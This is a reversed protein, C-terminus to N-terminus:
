MVDRSQLMARNSRPVTQCLCILSGPVSVCNAVFDSARSRGNMSMRCTASRKWSRPSGSPGTATAARTASSFISWIILKSCGNPTVINSDTAPFGTRSEFVWFSEIYPRLEHRPNVFTLKMEHGQSVRGLPRPLVPCRAASLGLRCRPRGGRACCVAMRNRHRRAAHHVGARWYRNGNSREGWPTVRVPIGPVIDRRLNSNRRRVERRNSPSLGVAQCTSKRRHM